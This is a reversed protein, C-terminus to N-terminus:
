RPAPAALKRHALLAHLDGVDVPVVAVVATGYRVLVLRGVQPM